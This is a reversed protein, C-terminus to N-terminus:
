LAKCKLRNSVFQMVNGALDGNDSLVNAWRQGRWQLVPINERLSLWKDGFAQADRLGNWALAFRAVALAAENPLDDIYRNLFADLKVAHANEDQQYIQWVFPKGAWQARVFSDEGRVLNVDCAWLLTDYDAQTLFPIVQVCLNGRTVAAGVAAPEQLFASVADTAVSQPVLCIVPEPDAQMAEFLASVPAHDYCFLSLLCAGEPVNVGIQKLFAQRAQADRLFADRRSLLDRELILGGTKKTFGPFFFHKTLPLGPHPSPLAHCGEVWDEASLYELNLWVCEPMGSKKRAAMAEVYAEPLACAFAEMVMDGVDEPSFRMADQPWQRVTIGEVQQWALSTDAVPCIKKLSALHDIWLTVEKGHEHAFQRSLRWCVGVDGLNDIVRCFFHLTKETM